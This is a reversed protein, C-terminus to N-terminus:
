RRHLNIDQHDYPDYTDGYDEDAYEERAPRQGARAANTKLISVYSQVEKGCKENPADGKDLHTLFNGEKDVFHGMLINPITFGKPVTILREVEIHNFFYVLTGKGYKGAWTITCESREGSFLDLFSDVRSDKPIWGDAMMQQFLLKLHADLIGLKGFTMLERPKGDAPQPTPKPLTSAREPRPTQAAPKQPKPSTNDLGYYHHHHVQISDKATGIYENEVNKEIVFDGEIIPRM